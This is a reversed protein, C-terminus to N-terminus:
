INTPNIQPADKITLLVVVAVFLVCIGGLIAVFRLFKKWNIKIKKQKTRGKQSKRGFSFGKNKMDEDGEDIIETGQETSTDAKSTKVASAKTKLAAITGLIEGSIDRFAGSLKEAAPKKGAEIKETQLRGLRKGPMDSADANELPAAPTTDEESIDEQKETSEEELAAVADAGFIDELSVPSDEETEAARKARFNEKIKDFEELVIKEHERGFKEDM